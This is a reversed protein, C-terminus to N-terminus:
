IERSFLARKHLSRFREIFMRQRLRIASEESSNSTGTMTIIEFINQWTGTRACVDQLSFIYRCDVSAIADRSVCIDALIIFERAATGNIKNSGEIIRIHTRRMRSDCRPRSLLRTLPLECGPLYERDSMPRLSLKIQVTRIKISGSM